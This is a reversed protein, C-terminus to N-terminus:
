SGWIFICTVAGIIKRDRGNGLVFAVVLLPIFLGENLWWYEVFTWWDALSLLNMSGGGPEHCSSSTSGCVLYSLHTKLGGSTGGGNLLMAQPVGLLLAPVVFCAGIGLWRVLEGRPTTRGKGAEATAPKSTAVTTDADAGAGADTAADGTDRRGKRASRAAALGWFALMTGLFVATALWVVGNLWFSFGFAVGVGVLVRKDPGDESKLQWIVVWALLMVVAVMVILHMQTLYPNLTNFMAIRDDTYPGGTLYDKHDWLVSPTLAKTISGGGDAQLYREWGLSQNTVLLAVAVLGAWVGKDRFARIKKEGEKVLPSFLLRATAFTLLIMATFGLVGPLNFSRLVSFGGEQLMGAFFDFGFHYRIPEGAFFPYETPYNGGVSFSRALAVHLGMDGWTNASVMLEGNEEQFHAHILWSTLALGFVAVAVDILPVKFHRPRISRGWKVLVAAGLLTSVIIGIKLSHDTAGSLGIAVLYTTWSTFVVSLLFGAPVRVIAPASPAVRTAVAFGALSTVLLYVTALM